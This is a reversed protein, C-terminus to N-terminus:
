IEVFTWDYESLESIWTSYDSGSPYKLVGNRNVNSFTDTQINPETISLSIIEVLGTCGYFAYDGISTVSNPITIETLGTCNRFTSIGISTVSNPITVSTLGTCNYFVSRGISTVSNPITVSTLGTCDLFAGEDISTVSNPITIETLGTCGYFAYDCRSTVGNGITIEKLTKIDYFPSYGNNSDKDYEINRGLYLFEIPCGYFTGKKYGGREISLIADSDEIKVEKLSTCGFFAGEDISTISNPITIDTLGTCNYFVNSDISTISNPITIDTLGTCGSFANVGIDTVSNPITIDTLGTCGSFADGGISTVSNPITIDTLGTCYRFANDGISTVGNPITVKSLNECGYCVDDSIEKFKKSFEIEVISTIDSFLSTSNRSLIKVDYTGPATIYEADIINFHITQKYLKDICSEKLLILDADANIYFLDRANEINDYDSIDVFCFGMNYYNFYSCYDPTLEYTMDNIKTFIYEIDEIGIMSLLCVHGEVGEIGMDKADIAMVMFAVVNESLPKDLNIVYKSISGKPLVNLNFDYIDYDVDITSGLFQEYLEKDILKLSNNDLRITKETSNIKESGNIILSEVSTGYYPEFLYYNESDEDFVYKAKIYPDTEIIPKSNTKIYNISPYVINSNNYEETDKFIRLHKM